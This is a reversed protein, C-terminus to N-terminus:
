NVQKEPEFRRNVPIENKGIDRWNILETCYKPCDLMLATIFGSRFDPYETPVLYIYKDPIKIPNVGEFEARRSEENYCNCLQRALKEGDAFAENCTFYHLLSLVIAILFFFRFKM